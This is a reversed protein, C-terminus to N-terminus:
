AQARWGGSLHRWDQTGRFGPRKGMNLGLRIGATHEVAKAAAVGCALTIPALDAASM